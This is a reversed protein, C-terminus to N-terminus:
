FLELPSGATGIFLASIVALATMVLVAQALRAARLIQGRLGALVIAPMVLVVGMTLIVTAVMAVVGFTQPNM